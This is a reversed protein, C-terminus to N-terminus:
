QNENEAGALEYASKKLQEMDPSEGNDDDPLTLGEIHGTEIREVAAQGRGIRYCANGFVFFATLIFLSLLITVVMLRRNEPISDCKRRLFAGAISKPKGWVKNYITSRMKNFLRM